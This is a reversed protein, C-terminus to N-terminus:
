LPLARAAPALQKFFIRRNRYRSMARGGEYYKALEDIKKSTTEAKRKAM